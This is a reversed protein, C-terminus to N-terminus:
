IIHLSSCQFTFRCSTIILLSTNVSVQCIRRLLTIRSIRDSLFPQTVPVSDVAPATATVPAPTAPTVTSAATSADGTEAPATVPVPATAPAPAPFMLAFVPMCFRSKALSHLRQICEEKLGGANACEPVAATSPVEEKHRVESHEASGKGKKKKKKDIAVKHTDEVEVHAVSPVVVSSSMVSGFVHNLLTAITAAPCLKIEPHDRFINNLHHKFCRYTDDCLMVYCPITHLFTLLVFIKPACYLEDIILRFLVVIVIRTYYDFYSLIM